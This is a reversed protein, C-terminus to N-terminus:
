RPPPHVARRHVPQLGGPGRSLGARLAQGAAGSAVAGYPVNDLTVGALMVLGSVADMDAPVAQRVRIGPAVVWGSDLKRETVRATGSGRQRRSKKSAAMLGM